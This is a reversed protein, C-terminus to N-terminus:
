GIRSFKQTGCFARSMWLNDVYCFSITSFLFTNYLVGILRNEFISPKVTSQHQHAEYSSTRLCSSLGGVGNGAHAEGM